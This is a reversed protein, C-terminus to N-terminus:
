KKSRYRKMYDEASKSEDLGLMKAYSKILWRLYGPDKIKDFKESEIHVIDKYSINLLEGVDRVKMKQAERRKKIFKGTIEVDPLLPFPEGDGKDADSEGSREDVSEGIENEQDPIDEHFEIVPDDAQGPDDEGNEEIISDFVDPDERIVPVNDSAIINETDVEEQIEIVQREIENQVEGNIGENERNEFVPEGNEGPEVAAEEVPFQFEIEGSEDHGGAKDETVSETFTDEAEPPDMTMQDGTIGIVPDESFEFEVVPEDEDDPEESVPIEEQHLGGPEEHDLLIEQPEIEALFEMRNVADEGVLAKYAQDIDNLIKKRESISLENRLPHIEPSDESSYLRVFHSYANEIDDRSAGEGLELVKLHKKKEKKKM